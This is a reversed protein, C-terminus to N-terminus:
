RLHEDRLPTAADEVVHLHAPVRGEAVERVLDADRLRGHPAVQARHHGFSQQAGGTAAGDLDAAGDRVV